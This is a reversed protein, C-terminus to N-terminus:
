RSESSDDDKLTSFLIRALVLRNKLKKTVGIKENWNEKRWDEIVGRKNLDLEFNYEELLPRVTCGVWFGKHIAGGHARDYIFVEDAANNLEYIKKKNNRAIYCGFAEFLWASLYDKVFYILDKRRWLSPGCNLIGYEDNNLRVCGELESKGDLKRPRGSECLHICAIEEDLRMYKLCRKIVDEKVDETLFYDDLLIIVYESQIQYLASKLRGGWEIKKSCNLTTIDLEKLEYKKSETNLFVPMDLNKWRKSLIKFFLEWTDSYADCSNVLLSCDEFGNMNKMQKLENYDM